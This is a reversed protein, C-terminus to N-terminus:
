INKVAKRPSQASKKPSEASTVSIELMSTSRLSGRSSKYDVRRAPSPLQFFDLRKGANEKVKEEYELREEERM